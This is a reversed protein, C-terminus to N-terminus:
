VSYTFKWGYFHASAGSYEVVKDFMLCNIQNGVPLKSSSYNIYCSWAEDIETLIVVASADYGEIILDGFYVTDDPVGDSQLTSLDDSHLIVLEGDDMTGVDVGLEKACLYRADHKNIENM